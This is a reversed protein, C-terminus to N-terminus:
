RLRAILDKSEVSDGVQVLIEDVTGGTSAYITTQMKMAELVAIKDGKSVSKGVSTAISSIIAPIPAGVHKDNSPDAKEKAKADGKISKDQVLTTRAKGNLEFTLSRIGKEDPEGVHLLKIFLTKGEEITISIEEGPELGHFYALTPLVSVDGYKKKFDQFDKFVQPYM